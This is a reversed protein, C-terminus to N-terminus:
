SCMKSNPGQNQLLRSYTTKTINRVHKQPIFTRLWSFETGLKRLAIIKEIKQHFFQGSLQLVWPSNKIYSCRGYLIKAAETCPGRNFMRTHSLLLWIQVSELVFIVMVPSGSCSNRCFKWSTIAPTSPHRGGLTMENTRANSINRNSKNQQCNKASVFIEMFFESIKKLPQLRWSIRCM